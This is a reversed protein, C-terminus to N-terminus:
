KSTGSSSPLGCQFLNQLRVLECLKQGGAPRVPALSAYATGSLPILSVAALEGTTIATGVEYDQRKKPSSRSFPVPVSVPGVSLPPLGEALGEWSNRLHLERMGPVQMEAPIWDGAHAVAATLNPVGGDKAHLSDLSYLAEQTQGCQQHSHRCEHVHTRYEQEELWGWTQHQQLPQRIECHLEASSAAVYPNLTQGILQGVGNGNTVLKPRNRVQFRLRGSQPILCRPFFFCGTSRAKVHNKQIITKDTKTPVTLTVVGESETVSETSQTRLRNFADSSNKIDFKQTSIHAAQTKQHSRNTHKKVFLCLLLLVLLSTLAGFTSFLIFHGFFSGGGVTCNSELEKVKDFAAPHPSAQVLDCRQGDYPSFCSVVGVWTDM